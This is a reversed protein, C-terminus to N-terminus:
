GTSDTTIPVLYVKEIWGLKDNYKVYSFAGEEKDMETVIADEPVQMIVTAGENPNDRLPVGPLSVEV